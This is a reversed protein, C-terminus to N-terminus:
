WSVVAGVAATGRALRSLAGDAAGYTSSASAFVVVAGSAAYSATVFAGGSGDTLSHLHRAQVTTRKLPPLDPLLLSVYVLQRGLLEFGPDLYRGALRPDASAARSALALEGRDWGAEDFVYELRVDAGGEFSYRLGGLALTQLSRTDMGTQAFTAGGAGDDVPYWGPRGVTHVADVYAALGAWLPLSAYEGFWGRSRQAAGATIAAYRDGSPAVYELKLQAKREFPEDAVFAPDGNPAVEALLVASWERGVSANVRALHRGRVLYLPDRYFGTAHFVRNSPSMLEAPGWQFNQLGYAIALRQDVRWTAYLEISEFTADSREPAWSGAVRPKVVQLALRPRAIAALQSGYEFRLDPRLESQALVQPLALVRNEPNVPADRLITGGGASIWELHGRFALASPAVAPAPDSALDEVGAAGALAALLLAIV